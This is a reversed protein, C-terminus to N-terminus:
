NLKRGETNNVRFSAMTAIFICARDRLDQPRLNEFDTIDYIRVRGGFTEDLIKRNPHNPNQLTDVTQEKITTTPVLWLTLPYETELYTKGALSVTHAALFTKGGGTPLRLCIYPIDSLTDVNLPKYKKGSQNANREFSVESGYIRADELYKKLVELTNEQYTKLQFM